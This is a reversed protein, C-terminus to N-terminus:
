SDSPDLHQDMERRNHGAYQDGARRESSQMERGGRDSDSNSMERDDTSMERDCESARQEGASDRSLEDAAGELRDKYESGKNELTDRTGELSFDPKSGPDQDRM